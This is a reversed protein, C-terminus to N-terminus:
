AINLCNNWHRQRHRGCRKGSMCEPLPHQASWLLFVIYHETLPESRSQCALFPRMRPYRLFSDAHNGRGLENYCGGDRLELRLM